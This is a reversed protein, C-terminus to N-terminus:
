QTQVEREVYRALIPTLRLAGVADGKTRIVEDSGNDIPPLDMDASAFHVVKAGDAQLLRVDEAACLQTMRSRETLQLIHRSSASSQWLTAALRRRPGDDTVFSPLERLGAHELHEDDVGLEAVGDLAAGAVALHLGAEGV